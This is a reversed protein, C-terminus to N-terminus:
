NCVGFFFKKKIREEVSIEFIQSLTSILMNLGAYSNTFRQLKFRVYMTGSAWSANVQEFNVVSISSCLHSIHEFNVIIGGFRRWHCQKPPKIRLKSCIECRKELTEITLKSCTIVPQTSVVGRGLFYKSILDKM